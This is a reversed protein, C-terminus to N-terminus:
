FAKELIVQRGASQYEMRDVQFYSLTIGKGPIDPISGGNLPGLISNFNFGKGEDTITWRLLSPQCVFEIQVTRSCYPERSARDAFLRDYRNEKEAERQAERSIELNGRDIANKLMELLAVQIGMIGRDGLHMASRQILYNLVGRMQQYHNQIRLTVSEREIISRMEVVTTGKSLFFLQKQIISHMDMVHFPKKLFYTAGKEFAEKIVKADDFATIVIVSTDPAEAKIASLLQLGGLEPMVVDTFVLFPRFQRFRELGEKGNEALIPNMHMSQVFDALNQRSVPDDEVILIDM